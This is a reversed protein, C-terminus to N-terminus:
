VADVFAWLAQCSDRTDPRIWRLISEHLMGRRVTVGTALQSDSESEFEFEFKISTNWVVCFGTSDFELNWSNQTTAQQSPLVKM